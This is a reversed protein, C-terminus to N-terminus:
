KKLAPRKFKNFFDSLEDKAEERNQKMNQIGDALKALRHQCYIACSPIDDYNEVTCILVICKRIPEAFELWFPEPLQREGEQGSVDSLFIMDLWPKIFYRVRGKTVYDARDPRNRAQMKALTKDIATFDLVDKTEPNGLGKLMDDLTSKLEKYESILKIVVSM